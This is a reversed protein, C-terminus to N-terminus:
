WLTIVYLTISMLVIAATIWECEKCSALMNIHVINAQHPSRSDEIDGVFVLIDNKKFVLWVCSQFTKNLMRSIFYNAFRYPHMDYGCFEILFTLSAYITNYESKNVYFIGTAFVLSAGFTCIWFDFNIVRKATKDQHYALTAADFLLLYANM